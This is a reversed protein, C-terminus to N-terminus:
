QVVCTVDCGYGRKKPISDLKALDRASRKAIEKRKAQVEASLLVEPVARQAVVMMRQKKILRDQTAGITSLGKPVEPWAGESLSTRIYTLAAATKQMGGNSEAAQLVASPTSPQAKDLAHISARMSVMQRQDRRLEHPEPLTMQTADEEINIAAMKVTQEKMCDLIEEISQMREVETFETVTALVSIPVLVFDAWYDLPAPPLLPTVGHCRLEKAGELRCAYETQIERCHMEEDLDENADEFGDTSMVTPPVLNYKEKVDPPMPIRNASILIDFFVKKKSELHKDKPDHDDPLAYLELHLPTDECLNGIPIPTPFVKQIQWKIVDLFQSPGWIAFTYTKDPTIKLDKVFEKYAKVSDTRLKGMGAMSGLLDPPEQGPETVVIQDFCILNAAAHALEAEEGPKLDEPRDGHCIYSESTSINMAKCFFSCMVSEMLGRGYSTPIPHDHLLAWRLPATIEQTFKGQFRIEWIRKRGEFHSTYFPHWSPELSPDHTPRHVCVSRGKFYENDVDYCRVPKSAICYSPARPTGKKPHQIIYASLWPRQIEGEDAEGDAM